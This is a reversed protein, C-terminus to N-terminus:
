RAAEKVAIEQYAAFASNVAAVSALAAAAIVARRM